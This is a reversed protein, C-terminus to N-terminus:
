AALSRHRDAPVNGYREKEMILAAIGFALLSWFWIGGQPGELFVDFAINVMFAAWYALIWLHLRSWWERGRRRARHSARILATAFGIQLLLWLTIGPVGSRALITLHGNHPSRLSEDARVQFGDDTALNIGYGKGTWFYEGLVTYNVIEGWWELRWRRTGDGQAEPGAIRVVNEVVQQPSIDRRGGFDISIGFVILAALFTVSVAAFRALRRGGAGARAFAVVLIAALAALMGGRNTSSVAIFGCLWPIWWVWESRSAPSRSSVPSSRYLGLLLFAAAGGLHVGFDGPKVGVLSVDSGPINPFVDEAFIRLLLVVPTWLLLWPILRGYREPIGEVAGSRILIPVLLLLFLAYGWVVADRLADMGYMGLYPITRAAGWAAFLLAIWVLPSRLAEGRRRELLVAVLGLALVAEGIFVPSVGLYAFPKGLLAYGGLLVAMSGLFARSALGPLLLSLALLMAGLTLGAAAVPAQFVLIGVIGSLLVLASVLQHNRGTATLM